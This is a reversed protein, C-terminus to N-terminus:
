SVICSIFFDGTYFLKEKENQIRRRYFGFALKKDIPNHMSKESKNEGFILNNDEKRDM